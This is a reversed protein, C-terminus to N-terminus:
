LDSYAAPYLFFIESKSVTHQYEPKASLTKWEPDDVFSKWRADRDAKNEFTTMYMLNPQHSGSLVEAYFVANFNLRKFLSIENGENFMHVKTRYLKETAGEYSRMEYVRDQKAARLNPAELTPMFKFARLLITEMRLYTPNDYVADIYDRGDTLYQKDNLLAAAKKEFEELSKYPILVYIRFKNLTDAAATKFVGVSPIGSRHLAPLLAKELYSDMRAEDTADALRYIRLEFYGPAPDKAHLTFPLAFLLLLLNKM